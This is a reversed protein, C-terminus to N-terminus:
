ANLKMLGNIGKFAMQIGICFVLFALLRNMVENGTAGIRESIKNNYAFCLYAAVLNVFLALAIIALKVSFIGSGSDHVNAGLAILTSIAGPGVTLPFSIPYFSSTKIDVQAKSDSVPTKENNLLGYGLLAIVIGGAAQTAPISVGMFKLVWSGVHLTIFGLVFCYVAILFAHNKREAQSLGRFYPEIIMATGIPNILPLLAGLAALFVALYESWINM